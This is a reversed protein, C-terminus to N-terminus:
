AGAEMDCSESFHDYASAPLGVWETAFTGDTYLLYLQGSYEHDEAYEYADSSTKFVEIATDYDGIFIIRDIEKSMAM